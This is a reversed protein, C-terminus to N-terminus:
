DKQNPTKINMAVGDRILHSVAPTSLFGNQGVILKSVKNAACIKIILSTCTDM